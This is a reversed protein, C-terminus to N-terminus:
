AAQRLYDHLVPILPLDAPLLNYDSMQNPRVWALNTHETPVLDGKWQRVVYVPMLVHAHSYPHSIFTLPHLCGWGVTIGLEEKLERILTDEPREDKEMKGGPLEWLGGHDKTMPRQAILVYKEDKILAAAAVMVLKGPYTPAKIDLCTM